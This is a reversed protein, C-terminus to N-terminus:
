PIPTSTVFLIFDDLTLGIKKKWNRNMASDPNQKQQDFFRRAARQLERDEKRFCWGYETIGGAPFAVSANSAFNKVAWLAGDAGAVSFDAEGAEVALIAERQPMFVLKVPNDRFRGRNMEELWTHYSTGKMVAATRGALDDIVKLEAGRAKSVIITNRSIFLLVYALKKERWELKVLDNPYLDCSGSALPEPTYEGNRIVVGESNQFQDDWREFRTIIPQIDNGLYSVFAMANIRYFDHGSGAICIRIVGSKRIDALSRGWATRHLATPALFFVLTLVIMIFKSFNGRM